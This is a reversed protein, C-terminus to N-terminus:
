HALISARCTHPGLDRGGAGLYCCFFLFAPRLQTATQLELVPTPSPFHWAKSIPPYKPSAPRGAFNSCTLELNQSLATKLCCVLFCCLVSLELRERSWVQVCLCMCVSACERMYASANHGADKFYSSTFKLQAHYCMGRTGASPPQPLLLELKIGTQAICHSGTKLLLLPYVQYLRSSRM